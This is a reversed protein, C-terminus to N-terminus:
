KILKPFFYYFHFLYVFLFSQPSSYNVNKYLVTNKYCAICSAKDELLVFSAAVHDNVCREDFQVIICICTKKTM